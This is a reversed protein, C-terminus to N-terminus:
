NRKSKKDLQDIIWADDKMSLHLVDKIKIGLPKLPTMDEMDEVVAPQWKTYNAEFTDTTVKKIVLDSIGWVQIGPEVAQMGDAIWQEPDLLGTSGEYSTRVKSTVYITSIENKDGKGAKSTIVDDLTETNLTKFCDYYLHVVESQTMGVTVPPELFKSLPAQIILGLIIAIVAGTIIRTKNKTFSKFLDTKNVRSKEKKQQQERIRNIEDMKLDSNILGDNKWNTLTKIWQSLDAEGKFSNEILSRIDEKLAPEAMLPSQYNTDSILKEIEEEDEGKFPVEGTIAKYALAAISFSRGSNGGLKPNNWPEIMEMSNKRKRHTNLFDMLHPPFFIIKGDDTLFVSSLSFQRVPFKKDKILHLSTALELLRDPTLEVDSFTVGEHYPGYFYMIGDIETLGDLKWNHIEGKEIILGPLSQLKSTDVGVFSKNKLGSNIALYKETGNDIISYGESASIVNFDM